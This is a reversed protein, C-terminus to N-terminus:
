IRNIHDLSELIRIVELKVVFASIVIIIYYEGVTVLKSTIINQKFVYEFKSVMPHTELEGHLESTYFKYL